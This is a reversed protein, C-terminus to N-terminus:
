HVQDVSKQSSEDTRIEKSQVLDILSKSFYIWWFHILYIDLHTSSVVMM